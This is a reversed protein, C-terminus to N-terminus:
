IAVFVRQWSAADIEISLTATKAFEARPFCLFMRCNLLDPGGWFLVLLKQRCNRVFALNLDAADIEISLTATKVFEAGPFCLFM